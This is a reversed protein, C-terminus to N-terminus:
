PVVVYDPNAVAFVADRDAAPPYIWIRNIEQKVAKAEDRTLRVQRDWGETYLAGWEGLDICTVYKPQSYPHLPEGLLDAAANHGAVRGLSLAHQCSMAAVNGFDDTAARVADGTVFVGPAHPARLYPDGVIRGLPDHEGPLQAALPNARMGATWVVMHTEIREGSSLTVGDPDISTVRVGTRTEIGGYQLAEALYPQAEDGMSAGPKDATDVLIVRFAADEGWAARLRIPMETAAEFGTLGGGAVVITDRAPSAPQDKLAAIHRDLRIATDFQDTDHVLDIGPIDPRYLQSGTALVFRDYVINQTGGGPLSVTLRQADWDITEIWGALHEAGVAALLAGVDPDMNELVAEYLRPRIVLRPAPSVVLVDIEDAKGALTIARRAALAAWVGAFGTGAIVIKQNM